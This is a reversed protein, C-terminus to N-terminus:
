REPVALLCAVAASEEKGHITNAIHLPTMSASTRIVASSIAQQTRLSFGDWLAGIKGLAWMTDAVQGPSMEAVARPVANFLSNSSSASSSASLISSSDPAKIGLRALGLLSLALEGGSMVRSWHHLREVLLDSLVIMEQHHINPITYHSPSTRSNWCCCATVLNYRRVKNRTPLKLTSLGGLVLSLEKASLRPIVLQLEKVFAARSLGDWSSVSSHTRVLLKKFVARMSATEAAASSSSESSSSSPTRGRVSSSERALSLTGSSTRRLMVTAAPNTWASLLFSPTHHYPQVLVLQAFLLWATGLLYTKMSNLSQNISLQIM